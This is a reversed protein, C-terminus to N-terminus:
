AAEQMGFVYRALYEAFGEETKAQRAYERMHASDEPYANGMHLPWAGNPRHSLASVYMAAVVGPVMTPDATLDGDYLEEFTVLTRHAGRALTSFESRQGIWINGQRDALPVHLLTADPRIAPVAVIPDDQGFPNDIVRWDGEMERYRVIDSGVLGRVPMFPLGKEGAILSAHIAPCTSEKVKIAGSKQAAVFRNARGYEYLLVSGAQVTAVCGAGILLDAQLSGAPLMILNLGKVGKRILARITAMSVGSYDNNFGTPLAVTAGDEIESVLTEVDVFAVKSQM